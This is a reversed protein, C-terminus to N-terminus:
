QKIFTFETFDFDPNPVDLHLKNIKGEKDLDFWLKGQPLSCLSTDFRFTFIHHNWHNLSAHFIPTKEMQFNLNGNNIHVTVNGYMKDKYVGEYEELNLHNNNLVGRQLAINSEKEKQKKDRKKKIILYDASWDKDNMNNAVLVDLIKNSLAGPLWNVSNTLIIVALDKEPIFFSKSIMGDYGGGHSIVKVGEFDELNWGMGYSSFHKKHKNTRVSFNIHPTTIQNFQKNSFYEKDHITGEKLNLQLWKSFDHVSSILAGAPAINDWNVWKLPNNNGNETFYPTAINTTSALQTTSTLTRNMNLPTLFADQIYNQWSKGTIKEIIQGATLYSINSYGFNTRFDFKPQLYQQAKIIEEPTKTTGYWLLDGSFTALGSRHSLLDAITFHQTVYDDYMKFYPLYNVVKDNWQLKGADVLQALASATFAKSNSAVAFLTHEDVTKKSQIDTVGYGKSLYISDSSVIAIAMGPINWEKYSKTFYTDLHQLQEKTQAKTLLFTLLFACTILKKM